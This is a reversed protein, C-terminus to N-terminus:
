HETKADRCEADVIMNAILKRCYPSFDARDFMDSWSHGDPRLNSFSRWPKFLLLNYQFYKDDEPNQGTLKVLGDGLIIPV